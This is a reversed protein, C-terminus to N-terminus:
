RARGGARSVARGPGTGRPHSPRPLTSRVSILEYTPSSYVVSGLRRLEHVLASWNEGLYGKSALVYAAGYRKLIAAREARPVGPEFFREVARMREAHDPVFPIHMPFAVTKGSFSAVHWCADPDTLVVDYHGVSTELFALWRPDGRGSEELIPKVATSWSLAVLLVALAPALLLRPLRSARTRALRDELAACADALSVQLVLVAHSLLRGYSWEGSWGGYVVLATLAIALWALPDRRNQRLRVILWPVGLLAPAVRPLPDEYMAVNGEHVLATQHFWLDSVPFFPWALALLFGAVLTPLLVAWVRGRRPLDLSWALLGLVLFLTNVPHTIALLAVVPAGLAVLALRGSAAIRAFGALCLLAVAAAFTSPYSAVLSLSRLHFFSSFSWPDPGWLFLVFVLAYFAAARRALWTAAFAYLGVLLLVVNVVGQAILVEAPPQGSIRAALGLVWMYPSLMAFPYDNGFVPNRPDIPREAVESVTPVYLWYDGVWADTRVHRVVLVCLAGALLWYRGAGTWSWGRAVGTQRPETMPWTLGM